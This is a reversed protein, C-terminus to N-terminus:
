GARAEGIGVESVDFIPQYARGDDGFRVLFARWGRRAAALDDARVRLLARGSRAGVLTISVGEREYPVHQLARHSRLEHRAARRAASGSRDQPDQRPVAARAKAHSRYEPRALRPAAPAEGHASTSSEPGDGGNGLGVLAVAAFGLFVASALVLGARAVRPDLPLDLLARLRDPM